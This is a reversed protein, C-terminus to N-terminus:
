NFQSKDNPPTYGFVKNLKNVLANDKLQLSNSEINKELQFLHNVSQSTVGIAHQQGQIEIIVIRERGGLSMTSVLKFHGSNNPTLNLKKAVWAIVFIVFMIFLLAMLMPLLANGAPSSLAAESTSTLTNSKNEVALVVQPLLGM